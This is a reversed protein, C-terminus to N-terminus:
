MSRKRWVKGGGHGYKNQFYAGVPMPAGPRCTNERFLAFNFQCISGPHKQFFPLVSTRIFDSISVCLPIHGGTGRGWMMHGPQLYFLEVPNKQLRIETLLNLYRPQTHHLVGQIWTSLLIETLKFGAQDTCLTGPWLCVFVFVLNMPFRDGLQYATRRSMLYPIVFTPVMQSLDCSIRSDRGQEKKSPM